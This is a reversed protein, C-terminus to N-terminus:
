KEEAKKPRGPKKPSPAPVPEVDETGSIEPTQAEAGMNGKSMDEVDREDHTTIMRSPDWGATAPQAKPGPIKETTLVTLKEPEGAKKIGVENTTVIVNRYTRGGIMHSGNSM